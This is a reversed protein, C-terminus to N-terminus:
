LLPGSLGNARAKDLDERNATVLRPAEALLREAVSHMARERQAVGARGVIRGAARAAKAIREAENSLSPSQSV